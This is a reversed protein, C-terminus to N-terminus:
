SGGLDEEFAADDENRLSQGDAETFDNPDKSAGSNWSSGSGYYGYDEYYYSPDDDSHSSSDDVDDGEDDEEGEACTQCLMEGGESATLHADCVRKSCRMCQAGAPQGCEHSFLFGGELECPPLPDSNM